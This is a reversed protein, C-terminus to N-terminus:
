KGKDKNDLFDHLAQSGHVSADTVISKKIMKTKLDFKLKNKYGFHTEVKKKTWIIDDDKQLEM